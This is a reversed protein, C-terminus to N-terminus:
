AHTSPHSSVLANRIPLGTSYDSIADSLRQSAAAFYGDTLAATHATALVGPHTLLPGDAPYPEIPFVDLGLGGLAGAELAALCANNDIAAGRAVNIVVCDPRLASILDAGLLPPNGTQHTAAMVVYDAQLVAERIRGAPVLQLTNPVSGFPPISRHVGVLTTGFPALRQAVAQGIAGMGIICGVSGALSRGSPTSWRGGVFGQRAEPLRHLLSLLLAIAREAVFPANLGPMNAVTVGSEGAARLDIREVGVGFQQILGIGSTFATAPVASMLPVLVDVMPGQALRAEVGNVEVTEVVVRRALEEPFHAVVDQWPHRDSFHPQGFLIRIGPAPTV